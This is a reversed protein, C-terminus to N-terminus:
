DNTDVGRGLMENEKKIFDKLIEDYEKKSIYQNKRGKPINIEPNEVSTVSEMMILKTEKSKINIKEVMLILGPLGWVYEPGSNIKIAPTYWANLIFNDTKAQAKQVKFDKYTEVENRIQWDFNELNDHILFSKPYTEDIISISDKLNKYISNSSSSFSVNRGGQDNSIKPMAAYTSETQTTILKYFSKQQMAKLLDNKAESSYKTEDIEWSVQQSYVVEFAINQGLVYSSILCPILLIILFRM